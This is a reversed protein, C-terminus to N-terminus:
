VLKLPPEIEAGETVGILEYIQLPKERGRVASAGLARVKVDTGCREATAESIVIEVDYEKGLAELRSAVNVVDGIATYSLRETSGVNGILAVGTNIGIRVAPPSKRGDPRPLCRMARRITDAARCAKIAHEEESM